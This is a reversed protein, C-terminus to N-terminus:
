ARGVLVDQAHQTDLYERVSRIRGGRVEFLFHIRNCYDDGGAAVGRAEVELAVRENEATVGLLSVQVGAPLATGIWQFLAPLEAKTRLGALAFRGPQGAVWWTADDALLDLAVQVNGASFNEVFSLAVRRSDDTSM